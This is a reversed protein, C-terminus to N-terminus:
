IKLSFTWHFRFGIHFNKTLLIWFFIPIKFIFQKRLDTTRFFDRIEPKRGCSDLSRDSRQTKVTKLISCHAWFCQPNLISLYTSCFSHLLSLVLKSFIFNDTWPCCFRHYKSSSNFLFFHKICKKVLQQWENSQTM